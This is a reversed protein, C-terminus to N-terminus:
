FCHKHHSILTKIFFIVKSSPTCHLHHHFRCPLWSHTRAAEVRAVRTGEKKSGPGFSRYGYTTQVRNRDSKWMDCTRSCETNIYVYICVYMYWCMPVYILRACLLTRMPDSMNKRNWKKLRYATGKAKVDVTLHDTCRCKLCENINWVFRDLAQTRYCVYKKEEIHLICNM